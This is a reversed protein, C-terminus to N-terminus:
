GRLPKLAEAWRFLEDLMPAAGRAIQEPPRFAGDEGIHQSFLPVAVAEPIPMIKLTTMLPKVSQVGRLGGSIGGYSVFGAPKHAWEAVLFNLANVLAPPAFYNYEPMVFVFADAASVSESWAHTHPREYQKLRPHKPEDFVPLNFSALDVLAPDFKGHAEAQAHFWQAIAPGQRGPRTSSIITQLKLALLRAKGASQASRSIAGTGGLALLSTM